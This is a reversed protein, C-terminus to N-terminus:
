FFYKIILIKFRVIECSIRNSKVARQGLPDNSSFNVHELDSSSKKSFIIGKCMDKLEEAVEPVNRYVDRM